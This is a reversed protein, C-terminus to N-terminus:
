DDKAELESVIGDLARGYAELATDYAGQEQPTKRPFTKSRNAMRAKALSIILYTENGVRSM